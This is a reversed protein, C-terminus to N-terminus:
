ERLAARWRANEPSVLSAGERWQLPPLFPAARCSRRMGGPFLLLPMVESLGIFSRRLVPISHLLTAISSCRRRNCGHSTRPPFANDHAVESHRARGTPSKFKVRKLSARCSLSWMKLTFVEFSWQAFFVTDDVFDTFRSCAFSGVRCYRSTATRAQVFNGM